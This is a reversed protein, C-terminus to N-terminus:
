KKEICYGKGWVTKIFVPKSPDEELKVRLNRIHVLVTGNSSHTYPEKWVNEYLSRASFVRGPNKALLLLIRYELETLSLCTDNKYVENRESSIRIGDLIITKATGRDGTKMGGTEAGNYTHYRRILASVRGLLESYAFPKTLYDDGGTMLGAVKDSEMARATLFLIPVYSFRRIEECVELGSIDPLMIDLIVLDTEKNLLELGETGTGAESVSYGERELLIRVGERVGEDDEIILIRNQHEM